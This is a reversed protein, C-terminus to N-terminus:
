VDERFRIAVPHFPLGEDTWHSFKVTVKRGIYHPSNRLIKEKATVNGPSSCRFYKGVTVECILIAWGDASSQIEVVTFEQDHFEKMKLLSKSRKGIEYGRDSIRIMAGEFGKERFVRFRDRAEQESKVMSTLALKINCDGEQFKVHESLCLMSHLRQEFNLARDVIDYLRYGLFRNDPQVKKVLSTIRQLQQGHIYLEGDLLVDGPVDVLKDFIHDITNIPNGLRSYARPREGERCEILCRHGDFKPQIWAKSWDVSHDEFKHALMPRLNGKADRDKGFIAQAKSEKHGIDMKKKIRAAVELDIQEVIDRGSMNEEVEIFKEQKEGFELGSTVYFGNENYAPEISWVRIKGRGDLKYLTKRISKMGKEEESEFNDKSPNL